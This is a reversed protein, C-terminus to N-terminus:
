TVPPMVEPKLNVPPIRISKRGVIEVSLRLRDQPPFEMQFEGFQDASAEALCQGTETWLMVSVQRPAIKTGRKDVVQGVLSITGSKPHTEIVLDVITGEADFMLQRSDLGGSRVGATLPQSLNDFMLTAMISSKAEVPHSAAFEVKVRHVALDPPSFSPEDKAVSYVFKWVRYASSCDPCGAALHAELDRNASSAIGRALDTWLQESFHKV